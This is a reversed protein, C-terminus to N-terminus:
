MLNLNKIYMGSIKGLKDIYFEVSLNKNEFTGNYRLYTKNTSIVKYDLIQLSNIKGSTAKVKEYFNYTYKKLMGKKMNISFQNNYIEEFKGENFNYIFTDVIKQEIDNQAFLFTSNCLLFLLIFLKKM